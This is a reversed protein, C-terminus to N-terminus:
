FHYGFSLSALLTTSSRLVASTEVTLVWNPATWFRAGLMAQGYNAHLAPEYKTLVDLSRHDTREGFDVHTFRGIFYPELWRRRYSLILDGGASRGNKGAGLTAAVALSVGEDPTNLLAYKARVSLTEIEYQLGLDFDDTLGRTYKILQYTVGAGVIVENASRGVTRASEHGMLPGVACGVTLMSILALILGRMAM